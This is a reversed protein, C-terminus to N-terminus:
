PTPNALKLRRLLESRLSLCVVVCQHRTPSTADTEPAFVTALELAAVLEDDSLKGVTYTDLRLLAKRDM